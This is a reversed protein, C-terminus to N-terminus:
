GPAALSGSPVAAPAIEGSAALAAPVLRATVESDPTSGSPYTHRVAVIHDGTARARYTLTVRGGEPSSDIAQAVIAKSPVRLTLSAAADSPVDLTVDYTRGRELRLRLWDAEGAFDAFLKTTRGLTLRADTSLNEPIDVRVAAFYTSKDGVFGYADFLALFHMGTAAPVFTIGNTSGSDCFVADGIQKGGPNRVRAEAFGILSSCRFAYNRGKELRVRFWDRDNRTEFISTAVEGLGVAATTSRDGPIDAARVTGASVGATALVAWAILHRM